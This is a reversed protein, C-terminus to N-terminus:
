HPPRAPHLTKFQTKSPFSPTYKNLELLPYRLSVILFKFLFNLVCRNNCEASVPMHELMGQYLPVLNVGKINVNSIKEFSITTGAPCQGTSDSPEIHTVHTVHPLNCPLHM